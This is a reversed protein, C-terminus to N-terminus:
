KDVVGNKEVEMKRGCRPCYKYSKSGTMHCNSCAWFVDSQSIWRAPVSELRRSKLEYLWRAIQRYEDGAPCRGIEDAVAYAHSIAKEIDKDEKVQELLKLVYDYAAILDDQKQVLDCASCGEDYRCCTATDQRFICEREISMLEYVRSACMKNKM